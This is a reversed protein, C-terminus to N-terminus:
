TNAFIKIQSDSRVYRFRNLTKNIRAVTALNTLVNTEVCEFLVVTTLCDIKLNAIFHKTDALQLDTFRVM